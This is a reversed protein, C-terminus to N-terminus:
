STILSEVISLSAVPVYDLRENIVEVARGVGDESQILAGLEAARQQMAQDGTMRILGATLGQVTLKKQAIPAPGVGLAAVRRGWFPQDGFFPCIMQPVGAHFAAATTGAGGHHVVAAMQPFLWDHPAEKLLFMDDRLQVDALGGVGTALVARVNAARLSEVVIATNRAADPRAMSGFGVYVPPPGAQLFARLEETPQWSPLHHLFWSGTVITSSDWDSPTPVVYQSYGYLKPIPQGNLMFQDKVPSLGLVDKRWTNIAGGFPGNMAKMLPKYSARNLFGLNAFPLAPSPFERTASLLPVPHALFAPVGLKEAIHYGGLAKPHYIIADSGQAAAWEEDLTQRMLPRMRRILSFLNKGGMAARGEPTEMMELFDVKLPAHQLGRSTIMTNFRTSTAITVDHGSAKLGMGLAVYPQVDGQTGVTLIMIKM